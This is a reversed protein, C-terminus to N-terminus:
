WLDIRGRFTSSTLKETIHLHTVIIYKNSFDATSRSTYDLQFSVAVATLWQVGHPYTEFTAM